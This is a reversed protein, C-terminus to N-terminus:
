KKSFPVVNDSIPMGRPRLREPLLDIRHSEILQRIRRVQGADIKFGAARLDKAARRNAEESGTASEVGPSTSARELARILKELSCGFKEEVSALEAEEAARRRLEAEAERARELEAAGQLSWDVVRRNPFRETFPDEPDSEERIVFDFADLVDVEFSLELQQILTEYASRVACILIGDVVDRNYMVHSGYEYPDPRLSGVGRVYMLENTARGQFSAEEDGTFYMFDPRCDWKRRAVVNTWESGSVDFAIYSRHYGAPYWRVSLNNMQSIKASVEIRPKAHRDKELRSKMQTLDLRQWDILNALAENAAERYALLDSLVTRTHPPRDHSEIDSIELDLRGL